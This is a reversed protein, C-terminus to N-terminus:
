FETDEPEDGNHLGAPRTLVPLLIALGIALLVIPWFWAGADTFLDIVNGLEPLLLFAMGIVAIVLGALFSIPDFKHLKM